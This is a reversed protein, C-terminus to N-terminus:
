WNSGQLEFLKINKLRNPMMASAATFNFALRALENQKGKRIAQGTTVGRRSKGSMDDENRM